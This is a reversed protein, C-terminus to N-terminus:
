GRAHHTRACVRADLPPDDLRQNALDRGGAFLSFIVMVFAAALRCTITSAFAYSGVNQDPPLIMPGIGQRLAKRTSRTSAREGAAQVLLATARWAADYNGADL